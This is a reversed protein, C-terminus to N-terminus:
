TGFQLYMITVYFKDVSYTVFQTSMITVYETLMYTGNINCIQILFYKTQTPLDRELVLSAVM